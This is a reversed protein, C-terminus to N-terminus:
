WRVARNTREASPSFASTSYTALEVEARPFVFTTSVPGSHRWAPRCPAWRGDSPLRRPWPDFARVEREGLVGVDLTSQDPALAIQVLSDDDNPPPSAVCITGASRMVLDNRTASPQVAVIRISLAAPAKPMASRRPSRRSRSEVDRADIPLRRSPRLAEGHAWTLRSVVTADIVFCRYFLPSLSSPVSQVLAGM